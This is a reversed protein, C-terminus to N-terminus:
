HSVAIRDGLFLTVDFEISSFKAAKTAGFAALQASTLEILYQPDTRKRSPLTPLELGRRTAHYSGRPLIVGPEIELPETVTLTVATETAQQIM